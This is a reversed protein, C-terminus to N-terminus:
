KNKIKMYYTFWPASKQSNRATIKAEPDLCWLGRDASVRDRTLYTFYYNGM